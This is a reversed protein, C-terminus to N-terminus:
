KGGAGLIKILEPHEQIFSRSLTHLADIAGPKTNPDRLWANLDKASMASHQRGTIKKGELTNAAALLNKVVARDRAAMYSKLAKVDEKEKNLKKAQEKYAEQSIQKRWADYSKELDRGLKGGKHELISSVEPMLKSIGEGGSTVDSLRKVKVEPANETLVKETEALRKMLDAAASLDARNVRNNALLRANVQSKLYERMKPSALEHNTAIADQVAKEIEAAPYNAFDPNALADYLRMRKDRYKDRSLLNISLVDSPNYSKNQFLYPDAKGLLQGSETLLGKGGQFAGLIPVTVMNAAIDKLMNYGAGAQKKMSGDLVAKRVKADVEEIENMIRQVSATKLLLLDKKIQVRDYQAITKDVYEATANKPPVAYSASKKLAQESLKDHFVENYIDGYVTALVRSTKTDKQLMESAKKVMKDLLMEEEQLKLIDAQLDHTEREIVSELKNLFQDPTMTFPKEVPEEASATKQLQPAVVDFVFGAPQVSAKKEMSQVGMLKQVKNLDALPFDQAKTDDKRQGLTTVAIRRNFACTALKTLKQPISAAKLQDALIKSRDEDSAVAISAAKEIAATLQFETLSDLRKPEEM